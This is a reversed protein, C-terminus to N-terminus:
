ELGRRAAGHLESEVHSLCTLPYRAGACFDDICRMVMPSRLQAERNRLEGRSLWHVALIGDDLQTPSPPASAAGSFTVRLFSREAENSHWLYVGIVFRPEFHFGTEEHTERVVADTLSEGPELHGAPQNFVIRGLAREEVVLFRGRNEIVAAVTVDIPERM